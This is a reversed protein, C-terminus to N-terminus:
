RGRPVECGHQAILKLEGCTYTTTVGVTHDSPGRSCMCLHRSHSAVRVALSGGSDMLELAIEKVLDEQIQFRRSYADVLRVFKGLGIIKDGPVYDIDITGFFPLFHHACLSFFNIDRITVVGAHDSDCQRTTNLITSPDTDYGSLLERYARAIRAECEAGRIAHLARPDNIVNAELWAELTPAGLCDPEVTCEKQVAPRSLKKM